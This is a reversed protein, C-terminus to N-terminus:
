RYGIGMVYDRLLSAEYQEDVILARLADRANVVGIPKSYEDVVPIHVFGHKAMMSLVDPLYDTPRCYTVDRTMVEAATSTCADEGCRAVQQVINTKTIVGVMAGDSNCVVVLSIHRDSLLKAADVLLADADTTVLRSRTVADINSVLKTNM